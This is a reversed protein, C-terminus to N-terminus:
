HENQDGYEKNILKIDNESWYKPPTDIGIKIACSMIMLCEYYYKCTHTSSCCIRNCTRVMEKM